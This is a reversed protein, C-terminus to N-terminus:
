INGIPTGTQLKGMYSKSLEWITITHLKDTILNGPITYAHDTYNGASSYPTHDWLFYGPKLIVKKGGDYTFIFQCHFKETKNTQITILIDDGTDTFLKRENVENHRWWNVYTSSNGTINANRVDAEVMSNETTALSIFNEIKIERNTIGGPSVDIPTINKGEELSNVYAATKRTYTHKDYIAYQNQGFDTKSISYDYDDNTRYALPKNLKM